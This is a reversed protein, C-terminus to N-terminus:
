LNFENEIKEFGVYVEFSRHPLFITNKSQMEEIVEPNTIESFKDLLIVDDVVGKGERSKYYRNYTKERGRQCVVLTRFGFKKAGRSIDRASHSGLVGITIEDKDYDEIIKLIEDREVM